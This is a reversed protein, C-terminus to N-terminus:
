HRTSRSRGGSRTQADFESAQKAREANDQQMAFVLALVILVAGIGLYM